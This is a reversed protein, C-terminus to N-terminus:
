GENAVSKSRRRSMLLDSYQDLAQEYRDFTQQKSEATMAERFEEEAKMLETRFQKVLAEESVRAM